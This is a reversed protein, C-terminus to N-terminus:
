TSSQQRTTSFTPATSWGSRTRRLHPSLGGRGRPHRPLEGRRGPEHLHSAARRQSGDHIEEAAWVRKDFGFDGGHLHNPDNNTALQYTVGDLTFQGLAIRNAYRGTINGFYPNENVYQDLNNFGLTVNAVRGRRDPVKISQLIGGYTIIKVEMGRGNNLTYLDVALGNSPSAPNDVVGFPEKTISARNHRSSAVSVGTISGAVVGMMGLVLVIGVVGRRSRVGHM